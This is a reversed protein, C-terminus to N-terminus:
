TKADKTQHRSIYARSAPPKFHKIDDKKKRRLKKKKRRYCSRVVQALLRCESKWGASLPLLVLLFSFFSRFTSYVCRTVETRSLFLSSSSLTFLSPLASDSDLLPSRLFSFFPRCFSSCSYSFFLLLFPSSL